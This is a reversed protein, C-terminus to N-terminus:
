RFAGHVRHANQHFGNLDLKTSGSSTSGSSATRLLPYVVLDQFPPHSRLAPPNNIVYDTFRPFRPTCHRKFEQFHFFIAVISTLQWRGRYRPQPTADANNLTDIWRAVGGRCVRQLSSQRGELRKAGSRQSPSTGIRHRDVLLTRM